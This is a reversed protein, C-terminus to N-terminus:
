DIDDAERAATAAATVAIAAIEAQADGGATGAVTAKGGMSNAHHQAAGSQQLAGAEADADTAGDAQQKIAKKAQEKEQVVM